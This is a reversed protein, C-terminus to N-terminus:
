WNLARFQMGTAIDLVSAVDYHGVGVAALVLNESRWLYIAATDWGYAGGIYLVSETGLNPDAAPELGWRDASEHDAVLLDFAHEADPSTEFLAGWSIYGGAETSNLSTTLADVFGKPIVDFGTGVPSFAIAAVGAKTDDVTLGEPAGIEILIARRLDEPSYLGLSSPAPTTAARHTPSPGSTLAVDRTAMQCAVLAVLLVAPAGFGIRLYTNM